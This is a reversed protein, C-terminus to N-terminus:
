VLISEVRQRQVLVAQQKNLQKIANAASRAKASSAGDIEILM